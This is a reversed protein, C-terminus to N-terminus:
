ESAEAPDQQEAGAAPTAEENEADITKLEKMAASLQTQMQQMQYQISAIQRELEDRKPSTSAGRQQQQSPSTGQQTPTVDPVDVEVPADGVPEPGYKEVLAAILEEEQGKYQEMYKNVKDIRNPAHKALICYVRERYPKQVFPLQEQTQPQENLTPSRYASSSPSTHQNDIVSMSPVQDSEEQQLINRLRQLQKLFSGDGGNNNNNNGSGHLLRAQSGGRSNAYSTGPTNAFSVIRGNVSISGDENVIIKSISSLVTATIWEREPVNLQYKNNNNINSNAGGGEGEQHLSHHFQEHPHFREMFQDGVDMVVAKYAERPFKSTQLLPDLMRKAAIMAEAKAPHLALFKTAGAVAGYSRASSLTSPSNNRNNNGSFLHLPLGPIPSAGSAVDRPTPIPSTFASMNTNADAASTTNQSQDRGPSTHRPTKRSVSLTNFVVQRLVQRLLRGDFEALADRGSETMVNLYEESAEKSIKTLVGPNIPGVTPDPPWQDHDHPGATKLLRELFSMSIVSLRKIM